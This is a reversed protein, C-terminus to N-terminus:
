SIENGYLTWQKSQNIFSYIIKSHTFVEDREIGLVNFINYEGGSNKIKNNMILIEKKANEILIDM